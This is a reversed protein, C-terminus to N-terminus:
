EMHSILLRHRELRLVLSLGRHTTLKDMDVEWLPGVSDVTVRWVKEEALSTATIHNVTRCKAVVERRHNSILSSECSRPGLDFSDIGLRAAAFHCAM